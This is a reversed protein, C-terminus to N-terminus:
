HVRNGLLMTAPVHGSDPRLVGLGFQDDSRQYMTPPKSEPKVARIKWALWVYDQWLILDGDENMTAKPM